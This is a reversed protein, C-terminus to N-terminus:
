RLVGYSFHPQNSKSKESLQIWPPTQREMQTFTMRFYHHNSHITLYFRKYLDSPTILSPSVRKKDLLRFLSKFYVEQFSNDTFIAAM